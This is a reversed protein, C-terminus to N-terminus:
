ASVAPLPRLMAPHWRAGAAPGSLVAEAAHEGLKRYSEWQGEDFYQDVTSEQPFDPHQRRYNAVDVPEDGTLSPKLFLILTGPQAAGDYHVEGLMAHAACRPTGSGSVPGAGASPPVVLESPSAFRAAVAM